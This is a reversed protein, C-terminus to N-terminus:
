ATRSNSRLWDTLEDVTTKGAALSLITLAADAEDAILEIGNKELCLGASLFAARKNGDIFPHNAAIAGAYTAALAALDSVEEYHFRNLPRALASDLLGEDRMGEAGGHLALSRDHLLLLGHKTIWRPEAIQNV